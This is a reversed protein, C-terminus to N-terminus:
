LFNCWIKVKARGDKKFRSTGKFILFPLSNLSIGTHWAFAMITPPSRLRLDVKPGTMPPDRGSPARHESGQPRTAEKQTEAVRDARSSVEGLERFEEKVDQKQLGM